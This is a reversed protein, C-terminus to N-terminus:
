RRTNLKALAYSHKTGGAAVRTLKNVMDNWFTIAKLLEEISRFTVSRGNITSSLIGGQNMEMLSDLQAQAQALTIGSM